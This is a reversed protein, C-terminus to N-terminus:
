CVKLLSRTFTSLMISSKKSVIIDSCFTQVVGSLCQFILMRCPNSDWTTRWFAFGANEVSAPTKKAIELTKPTVAFKENTSM